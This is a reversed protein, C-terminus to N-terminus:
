LMATIYRVMVGRSHMELKMVSHLIIQPMCKFTLMYGILTTSGSPNAAARSLSTNQVTTESM